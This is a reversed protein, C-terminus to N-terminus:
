AILRHHALVERWADPIRPGVAMNREVMAQLDGSHNSHPSSKWYKLHVYQPPALELCYRRVHEGSGPGFYALPTDLNECWWFRRDDFRALFRPFLRTEPDCYTMNLAWGPVRNGTLPRGVVDPDSSRSALLHVRDPHANLGNFRMSIYAGARWADIAQGLQPGAVM